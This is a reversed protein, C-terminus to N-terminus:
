GTAVVAAARRLRAKKATLVADLAPGYQQIRSRGFATEVAVTHRGPRDAAHLRRRDLRGSGAIRAEAEATRGGAPVRKGDVIQPAGRSATTM